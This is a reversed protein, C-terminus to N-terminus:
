VAGGKMSHRRGAHKAPGTRVTGIDPRPADGWLRELGYFERAEGLLIHVVVDFYDLLIWQGNEEGEIHHPLEGRAKLRLRIEEAIAQAHTTSGATTLIFYDALSSQERVDLVLTEEGLKEEIVDRVRAALERATM